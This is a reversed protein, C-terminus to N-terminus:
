YLDFYAQSALITAIMQEDTAGGGLVNVGAAREAPTAPRRLFRQYWGSVLDGRYESSTLLAQAVEARTMGGALANLWNQSELSTPPRALLDGYLAKVFSANTGGSHAYFGPSGLIVAELQEDSTGSELANEGAALEASTPQRGLLSLYFSRVLASRYQASNEIVLAVQNRTAGSQLLNVLSQLESSSPSQGLLDQYMGQIFRANPTAGTPTAVCPDSLNNVGRTGDALFVPKPPARAVTVSGTGRGNGNVTVRGESLDHLTARQGSCTAGLLDITVTSNPPAAAVTVPYTSNANPAGVAVSISQGGTILAAPGGVLSAQRLQNAALGADFAVTNNGAVIAGGQLANGTAGGSFQVGDRGNPLTGRAFGGASGGIMNGLLLNGGTGGGSVMVGDGRNGSILNGAGAALGGITNNASGGSITIGTANGLAQNGTFTTGIYNGVVLNNTTRTGSLQVAGGTNGSIV